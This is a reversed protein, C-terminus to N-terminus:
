FLIQPKLMIFFAVAIDLASLLMFKAEKSFRGWSADGM